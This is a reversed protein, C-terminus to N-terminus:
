GCFNCTRKCYIQMTVVLSCQTTMLNCLPILDVCSSDDKPNETSNPDGNGYLQQIKQIDDTGLEPIVYNGNSDISSRYYPNMISNAANTHELGLVHGIEHVTVYLMDIYNEHLIKSINKYTWLEADDYHLYPVSNAYPLLAHALVGGEGDFPVGDGHSASHFGITIDPNSTVREFTLPSVAAWIDFSDKLVQNVVDASVDDTYQTVAYTLNNKSWKVASSSMMLVDPFGCRPQQMKTLTEDDLQGTVQLGAMTQFRQIAKRLVSSNKGNGGVVFKNSFVGNLYGYKKLYEQAQEDTVSEAHISSFINAAAFLLLLWVIM